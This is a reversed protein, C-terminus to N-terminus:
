QSMKYLFADFVPKLTLLNYRLKDNGENEKEFAAEKLQVEDYSKYLTIQYFGSAYIVEFFSNEPLLIREEVANKFYRSYRCYNTNGFPMALHGSIYLRIDGSENLWFVNQNLRSVVEMALNRINLETNHDIGLRNITKENQEYREYSEDYKAVIEDYTLKSM